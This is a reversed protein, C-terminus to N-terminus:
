GWGDVAYTRVAAEDLQVGLGPGQPLALGGARVELRTSFLRSLSIISFDPFYEDTRVRVLTFHRERVARTAFAVGKELPVVCTRAELATVKMAGM